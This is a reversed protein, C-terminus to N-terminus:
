DKKKFRILLSVPIVVVYALTLLIPSIVIDNMTMVIFGVTLLVVALLMLLYNATGLGLRDPKDKKQM